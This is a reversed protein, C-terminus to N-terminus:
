DDACTRNPPHQGGHELHGAVLRRQDCASSGQFIQLLVTHRENFLLGTLMHMDMGGIIRCRETRLVQYNDGHLRMLNLGAQQVDHRQDPWLRRHHCCYVTNGPPEKLAPSVPVLDQPRDIGVPRQKVGKIWFSHDSTRDIQGGMYIIGECHNAHTRALKHKPAYGAVLCIGNL